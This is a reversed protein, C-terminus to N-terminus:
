EEEHIIEVFEHPYPHNDAITMRVIFVALVVDDVAYQVSIPGFAAVYDTLNSHKRKYLIEGRDIPTERLVKTINALDRWFARSAKDKVAMAAIRRIRDELLRKMTVHYTM